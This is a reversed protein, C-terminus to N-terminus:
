FSLKAVSGAENFSYNSQRNSKRPDTEHQFKSHHVKHMNPTVIIYQLWRDVKIPIRINAHEIQAIITSLTLYLLLIWVSIGLILMGNLNFFIRILSEVPHQRFTTTVDVLDDSHHLSHFKWLWSFKHFLYHVFYGAWLDLFIISIFIQLWTDVNVQNFLGYSNEHVWNGVLLTSTAFLFNLLILITALSLNSILHHSRKPVLPIMSELGYLIFFGTCLIVGSIHQDIWNM